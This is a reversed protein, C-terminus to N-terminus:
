NGKHDLFNNHEIILQHCNEKKVTLPLSVCCGSFVAECAVGARDTVRHWIKQWERVCNKWMKICQRVLLACRSSLESKESCRLEKRIDIEAYVFQM